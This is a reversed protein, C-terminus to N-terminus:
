RSRGLEACHYMCVYVEIPQACPVQYVDVIHSEMVSAGPMHPSTSGMRAASGRGRDGGLPRSGDPCQYSAIIEYSHQPGCAPIPDDHTQGPRPAAAAVSGGTGGGGGGGLARPTSTSRPEPGSCGGVVGLLSLILTLAPARGILRTCVIM